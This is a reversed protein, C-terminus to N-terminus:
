RYIKKEKTWCYLCVDNEGFYIMEICSCCYNCSFNDCDEDGCECVEKSSMSMIESKVTTM